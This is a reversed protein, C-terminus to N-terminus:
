VCIMMAVLWAWPWKIRGIKAKRWCVKRQKWKVKSPLLFLFNKQYIPGRVSLLRTKDLVLCDKHLVIKSSQMFIEHHLISRSKGLSCVKCLKAFVLSLYSIYTCNKTVFNLYTRSNENPLKRMTLNVCPKCDFCVYECGRWFFWAVESVFDVFVTPYNEFVTGGNKLLTSM